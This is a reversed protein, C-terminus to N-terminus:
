PIYKKLVAEVDALEFPKSIFDSMGLSLCKERDEAMANATTAIIPIKGIEGQMARIYRTTELGDMEPMMLDMFIIDFSHSEISKLAEFGNEVIEVECNLRELVEKMLEQNIFHDEVVLARTQKVGM